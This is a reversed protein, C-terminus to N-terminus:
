LFGVGGGLLCHGHQQLVAGVDVGAVLVPLRRQVDGGAVLRHAAGLRQHRQQAVDVHRVPRAAGRQVVRGEASVQLDAGGMGVRVEVEVGYGASETGGYGVCVETGWVSGTGWVSRQVETGWVSRRVGCLGGYGVCVEM